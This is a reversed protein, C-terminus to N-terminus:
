EEEAEDDMDAEDIVDIDEINPTEEEVAEETEDPTDPTEAESTDGNEETGEQEEPMEDKRTIFASSFRVKEVKPKAKIFVGEVWNGRAIELVEYGDAKRREIIGGKRHMAYAPLVSCDVYFASEIVDQLALPLGQWGTGMNKEILGLVDEPLLHAVNELTLDSIKRIQHKRIAIANNNGESTASFVEYREAELQAVLGEDSRDLYRIDFVPKIINMYHAENDEYGDQKKGEFLMRNLEAETITWINGKTLDELKLHKAM